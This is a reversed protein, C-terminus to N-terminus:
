VGNVLCLGRAKMFVGLKNKSGLIDKMKHLLKELDPLFKKWFEGTQYKGKRRIFGDCLSKLEKEFWERDEKKM